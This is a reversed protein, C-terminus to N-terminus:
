AEADTKGRGGCVCKLPETNLGNVYFHIFKYSFHVLIYIMELTISRFNKNLPSSGKEM